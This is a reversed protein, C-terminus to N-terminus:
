NNYYYDSNFYSNDYTNNYNEGYRYVLTPSEKFSRENVITDKPITIKNLSYCRRFASSGIEELKSNESIIVESLSEDGYFAHGGIRTVKDPIIISKLSICNEFSNGRIESLNNSLKISELSSAGYFVEGGMYNLTNPLTINTISECKYFAGGGLYELNSPINVEVLKKDNKFAQGRIEIISNPLEVKELFPMNSFTNGRLSVVKEGKYTEPITVTKFNTLGFAYFRVAYGDHVKEYMIRPNVFIILPLIIAILIFVVRIIKHDSVLSNKVNMVINSIKENPRSKIEKKLYKLFDYKRTLKFFIFLIILGIIYTYIPFHFFILSIFVFLLISFIINLINKRKLVDRPILNNNEIGLKTLEKKIFIELLHDESNAYISDFNSSNVIEKPKNSIVTNSAVNVGCNPCFKDDEKLTYGCKSCNLTRNYSVTSSTVLNNNSTNKGQFPNQKKILSLIPVVLFAGIFVAFFDIMAIYTTIFFDFFLLIAARLIFLIWFVKKSNDQSILRSLPILVFISMHISVFAEIGLASGISFMNDGSSALVMTPIMLLTGMLFIKIKKM